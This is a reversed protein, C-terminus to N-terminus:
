TRRSILWYVSFAVAGPLAYSAMFLWPNQAPMKAAIMSGIIVTLFIGLMSGAILLLDARANQRQRTAEIRHIDMLM